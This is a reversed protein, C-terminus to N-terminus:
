PKANSPIIAFAYGQSKLWEIALPLAHKLNHEAKLSDHFVIISGNRTYKKVKELVQEGSLRHSYDRSVVDYMIIKFRKRLMRLQAPRLLGHPPRLLRSHILNDAELVSKAYQRSKTGMGKNHHMTHNGVAHGERRVEDILHPYRAVNDGVMFITAKVGHERLVDLVWPTIDPHPGDDFTLFVTRPRKIRWVCGPFM